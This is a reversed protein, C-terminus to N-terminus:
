STDQLVATDSKTVLMLGQGTCFAKPHFELIVVLVVRYNQLLLFSNENNCISCGGSTQWTVHEQEPFQGALWGVM